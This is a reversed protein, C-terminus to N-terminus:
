LMDYQECYSKKSKPHVECAFPGTKIQSATSVRQIMALNPGEKSPCINMSNYDIHHKCNPKKKCPLKTNKKKSFFPISHTVHAAVSLHRMAILM